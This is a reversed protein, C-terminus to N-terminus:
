QIAFEKFLVRKIRPRTDPFLKENFTDLIESQIRRLNRDGRMNEITQSALYITLWNKLIPNKETLFAQGKKQDLEASVELTLTVRVYRTVGPENLNAVVPELDHYWSKGTDQASGDAQWTQMTQEQQGDHAREQVTPRSLLREFGFGAAGCVIVVAAFILWQLYGSSLRRSSQKQGSADAPERKPGMQKEAKKRDAM